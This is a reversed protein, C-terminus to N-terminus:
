SEIQIYENLIDELSTFKKIKNHEDSYINRVFWKGGAFLYIYEGWSDRALEIFEDENDSFLPRCYVDWSDGRDRNYALCWDKNHNRFDNFDQKKGIEIGLVSISGLKILRNVKYQSQYNENLIKGVGKPYGDFHCYISEIRGDARIVGIRSRTSM